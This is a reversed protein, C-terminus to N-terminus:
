SNMYDNILQMDKVQIIVRKVHIAARNIAEFYFILFTETIKQITKLIATQMRFNSKIKLMLKKILRFFSLKFILLNTFKQYRCIERFTVTLYNINDIKFVYFCYKEVFFM